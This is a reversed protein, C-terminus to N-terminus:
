TRDGSSTKPVKAAQEIIQKCIRESIQEQLVTKVVKAVEEMILLILVDVIHETIRSRGRERPGGPEAVM